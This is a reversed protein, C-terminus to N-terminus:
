KGCSSVYNGVWFTGLPCGFMNPCFEAADNGGGFTFNGNSMYHVKLGYMLEFPYLLLNLNIAKEPYHSICLVRDDAYQLVVVGIPILDADLGVLMGNSQALLVMKTLSEVVLNFFTPSMPKDQGKASQFYSGIENNLNVRMMSDFLSEKVWSCWM